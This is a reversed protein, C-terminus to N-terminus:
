YLTYRLLFHFSLDQTQASSTSADMITKGWFLETYFRKNAKWELGTGVSSIQDGASGLRGQDSDWSRGFDFFPVLYLTSRYLAYRLQNSIVVGNDRVLLNERFGRVSKSGGIAYKEAPLLNDRTLQGNVSFQWELKPKIKLITTLQGVGITFIRRENSGGYLNFNTGRRLGAYIATVFKPRQYFGNLHFVIPTSNSEGDTFGDISTAPEGFLSLTMHKIDFGIGISLEFQPEKLLPASVSFGVTTSESEIDAVAFADDIISFKSYRVYTNILYADNQLPLSYGLMGDRLGQSIGLDLKFTDRLGFLDRHGMNIGLRYQGISPSQYNSLQTSFFYPSEEKITLSLISQGLEDGPFINAKVEAILPHSQLVELALQLKRANLPVTVGKAIASKIYDSSMRRNGSMKVRTLRGHIARLRIVGDTIRQNPVIVGSNVYGNEYYYKSLRKQIEILDDVSIDKGEYIALFKKMSESPIIHPEELEIKNIRLNGTSFQKKVIAGIAASLNLQAQANSWSLLGVCLFLFWWKKALVFGRIGLNM